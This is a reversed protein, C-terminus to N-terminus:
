CSGKIVAPVGVAIAGPPVDHLVVANAGVNAHDGIKVQRIIKAGAGIEVHGGLVVGAVLTVQQFIVCNPGITVTPHIVIGSTHPLLLGGEIKCNLPIDAGSVMSWFRYHLVCLRRRVTNLLGKKEYFVQYHRISRILQRSPDWWRTLEERSWDPTTASVQSEVRM